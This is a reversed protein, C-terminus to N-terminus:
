FPSVYDPDNEDWAEQPFSSSPSPSSPRSPSSPEGTADHLVHSFAGADHKRTDHASKTHNEHATNDVITEFNDVQLGEQGEQGEESEICYCVWAMSGKKQGDRVIKFSRRVKVPKGWRKELEEDLKEDKDTPADPDYNPEWNAGVYQPCIGESEKLWKGFSSLQAPATDGRIPLGDVKPVVTKLLEGPTVRRTKRENFFSTEQYEQFWANCFIARVNREDDARDSFTILNRGYQDMGAAELIGSIVRSHSVFSNLTFSGDKSGKQQWNRVLVIAARVLSVRERYVWDTFDANEFKRLEPRDTDPVLRIPIIRRTNDQSFSPNNGTLLWITQPDTVQSTKNAGLLRQTWVDATLIAALTASRIEGVLNDIVVAGRCEVLHTTLEKRMEEENSTYTTLGHGGSKGYAIRLVADVLTGKGAGQVSAEALFAPTRGIILQRVFFTLLLGVANHKDAESAFPFEVFLKKLLLKKAANVEDEAVVEPMAGFDDNPLYFIGSARDFGPKDILRGESTFVPAHTIMVLEPPKVPIQDETDSLMMKALAPPPYTAFPIGTRSDTDIWDFAHILRAQLMEVSLPEAGLVLRGKVTKPACRVLSGLHRFIMPADRELEAIANWVRHSLKHFDQKTQGPFRIRDPRIEGSAEAGYVRESKARYADFSVVNDLPVEAPSREGSDLGSKVTKHTESETLGSGTGADCLRQYAEHYTYISYHLFNGVRASAKFLRDNRLNTCTFVDDCEGRLISLVYSEIRRKEAEEADKAAKRNAKRKENKRQERALRLQEKHEERAIKAEEDKRKEDEVIPRWDLAHGEIVLSRYPSEEDNDSARAPTYFMRSSDKASPDASPSQAAAWRWLLEYEDRPIPEILPIFVRFKIENDPPRLHSYTTYAIVAYGLAAWIQTDRDFDAEHDHDLMLACVEKVNQKARKNRDFVAPSFLPGDKTDRVDPHDVLQALEMWTLRKPKAKNDTKGSFFSLNFTIDSHPDKGNGPKKQDGDSEPSLPKEIDPTM